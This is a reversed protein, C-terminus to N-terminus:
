RSRGRDGRDLYQRERRLAPSGIVATDAQVPKQRLRARAYERMVPLLVAVSDVDAPDFTVAAATQEADAYRQNVIALHTRLLGVRSKREAYAELGKGVGEEVEDLAKSADDFRGLQILVEARNTLDYPLRRWTTRGGISRRPRRAIDSRRRCPASPRRRRRSRRSACRCNAIDNRMAEAIRVAEMSLEHAKTIDDQARYARAAINLANLQWNLYRNTRLSSWRQSSPRSPRPTTAARSSFPHWSPARGPWRARAGRKEALRRAKDLM